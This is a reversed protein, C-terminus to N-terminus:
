ADVTEKIQVPTCPDLIDLLLPAMDAHPLTELARDLIGGRLTLHDTPTVRVVDTVIGHETTIKLGYDGRPAPTLPGNPEAPDADLAVLRAVTRWLPGHGYRVAIQEMLPHSAHRGALSNEMPVGDFFAEATVPPLQGTACARDPFANHVGRLIPAINANSAMLADLEDIDAPLGGIMNLLEQPFDLWAPRFALPAIGLRAPLTICLKLAHDRRAEKAAAERWEASVPQGLARKVAVTQAARCINFLRPLLDAVEGVPKGRVLEGVPLEPAPVAEFKARSHTM